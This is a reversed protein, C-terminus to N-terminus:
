ATSDSEHRQKLLQDLIPPFGAVARRGVPLFALFREDKLKIITIRARDGATQYAVTTILDGPDPRVQYAVDSISTLPLRDVVGGHQVAYLARNTLALHAKPGRHRLLENVTKGARCIDVALVQEDQEM